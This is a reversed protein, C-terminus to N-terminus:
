SIIWFAQPFSVIPQICTLSHNLCNLSPYINILLSSCEPLGGYAPVLHYNVFCLRGRQIVLL